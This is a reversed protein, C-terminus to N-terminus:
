PTHQGMHSTWFRLGRLIIRYSFEAAHDFDQKQM